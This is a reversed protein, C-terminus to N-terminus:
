ALGHIFKRFNCHDGVDPHFDQLHDLLATLPVSVDNVYVGTKQCLRLNSTSWHSLDIMDGIMESWVAAANQYRTAIYEAIDQNERVAVSISQELVTRYLDPLDTNIRVCNVALFAKAVNRNEVPTRALHFERLRWVCDMFTTVPETIAMTKELLHLADERTECYASRRLMDAINFDGMLAPMKWHPPDLTFPERNGSRIIKQFIARANRAMDAPVQKLTSEPIGTLKLMEWGYREDYTASLHHQLESYSILTHDKTRPFYKDIYFVLDRLTSDFSTHQLTLDPFKGSGFKIRGYDSVSSITGFDLWRGDIGINSSNLTGHIIRKRTAVATQIAFRSTMELLLYNLSAYGGPEPCAIGLARSLGDTLGSIAQRTRWVDTPYDNVLTASPQFFFARMYHAPRLAADRLIIARKADGHRTFSRDPALTGTTIIAQVRAAGYPLAMQCVEGWLAEQIAEELSAGGHSHWFDSSSGALPNKGIGKIQIDGLLGCRVGGGNTELAEGGYREGFASAVQETYCAPDEHEFPICYAYRTADFNAPQAPNVWEVRPRSLRRVPFPVFSTAPLLEYLVSPM